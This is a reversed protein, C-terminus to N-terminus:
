KARHQQRRRAGGGAADADLARYKKYEKREDSLLHSAWNKGGFATSMEAVASTYRQLSAMGHWARRIRLPPITGPGSTREDLKGDLFCFTRSAPCGNQRGGVVAVRTDYYAAACGERPLCTEEEDGSAETRRPRIVKWADRALDYIQVYENLGDSCIGGCVYMLGAAGSSAPAEVAIPMPKGLRWTNMRGEYVETANVTEGGNSCGGVVVLVEGDAGM